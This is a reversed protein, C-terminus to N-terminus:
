HLRQDKKYLILLLRQFGCMQPFIADLFINNNALMQLTYQLEQTGILPEMIDSRVRANRKIEVTM